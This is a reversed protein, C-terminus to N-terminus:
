PTGNSIPRDGRGLIRNMSDDSRGSGIFESPRDVGKRWVIPFPNKIHNRNGIDSFEFPRSTPTGVRSGCMHYKVLSMKLGYSNYKFFFFFFFLMKKELTMLKFLNRGNNSTKNSTMLTNSYMLRYWKKYTKNGCLLGVVFIDRLM